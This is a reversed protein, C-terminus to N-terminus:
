AASLIEDIRACYKLVKKDSTKVIKRVSDHLCGLMVQKKKPMPTKDPRENFHVTLARGEDCMWKRFHCARRYSPCHPFGGIIDDYSAINPPSGGVNESFRQAASKAFLAVPPCFEMPSNTKGFPCALDIYHEDPGNCYVQFIWDKPHTGFQRFGNSLDAKIYWMVHQLVRIREKTKLYVVSTNAHAANM